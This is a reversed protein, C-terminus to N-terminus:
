VQADASRQISVTRRGKSLRHGIANIPREFGYWLAISVACVMALTGFRWLEVPAWTPEIGAAIRNSLYLVIWHSLYISYSADGLIVAGRLPWRDWAYQMNTFGVLALFSGTALALSYGHYAAWYCVLSCLLPLWAGARKLSIRFQYALIGVAFDAHVMTFIHINGFQPQFFYAVAALTILLAALWMRGMIPVIVAALLYFIVEHELTWTVAYYREGSGPLLSMGYLIRPWSHDATVDVIPVRHLWLQFLCFLVVLPYIRFIRKILFSGTSFGPRDTVVSIVYGSIAFFFNVGFFGATALPEFPHIDSAPSWRLAIYSHFYAVSLAAIARAAQLGEKKSKEM